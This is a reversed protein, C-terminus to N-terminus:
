DDGGAPRGNRCKGNARRIRGGVRILGDCGVYPDLRYLCSDKKLSLNRKGCQKRDAAYAGLRRLTTLERPFAKVQVAVIIVKKARQLATVDVPRYGRKGKASLTKDPDINVPGKVVRAKLIDRFRLCVAVARKARHWDIRDLFNSFAPKAQATHAVVKKVEPDHPSVPICEGTLPLPTACWLFAPGKWWDTAGLLEKTSKGRSAIDVLNKKTDVYNWASVKKSNKIHQVRNAIFINFRRSENNHLGACCQQGDRLLAHHGRLGIIEALLQWGQSVISSCDARSATHDCPGVRSKGMVLACSIKDHSEVLRLYSCQGYGTLNADSFCHLEM